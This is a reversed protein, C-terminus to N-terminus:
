RSYVIYEDNAYTIGYSRILYKGKINKRLVIIQKYKRSNFDGQMMKFQDSGEDIQGFGLVNRAGSYYMEEPFAAVLLTDKDVFPKIKNGREARATDSERHVSYVIVPISFLMFLIVLIIQAKKTLRSIEASAAIICPFAFYYLWYTHMVAAAPAVVLNLAGFILLILVLWERYASKQQLSKWAWFISLGIVIPNITTVIRTLETFYYNFSLLVNFNAWQSYAREVNSVGKILSVQWFYIGFGIFLPLGTALISLFFVRPDRSKFALFVMLGFALFLIPFDVFAGILFSIGALFLYETKKTELWLGYYHVALLAFFILVPEFCVM